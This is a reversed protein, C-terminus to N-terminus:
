RVFTFPVSNKAASSPEVPLSSHFTVAEGSGVEVPTLQEGDETVTPLAVVQVTVTVSVADLPGVAGVPLTDNEAAGDPPDNPLVLQARIAWPALVAAQWTVKTGAAAPPWVMVPDYPPSAPCPELEPWPESVADATGTRGGSGVEVPTLQEGEESLVPLAAVQVIVTPSVADLPAVAGVPLTDNDAAGDVPDSPLVLQASTAWPAVVAAHV